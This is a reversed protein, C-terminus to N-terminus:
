LPERHTIVEAALHLAWGELGAEHKERTSELADDALKGADGVAGMLLRAESLWMIMQSHFSGMRMLASQELAERLLSEAEAFRATLALSYGLFAAFVPRWLPVDHRLCLERAREFPAIALAVDGRRVHLTGISLLGAVVTQPHGVAEAIELTEHAMADGEDFRGLDSLAWCLFGRAFVAPRIAVGFGEHSRERPLLEIVRRACDVCGQYDGLFYHAASLYTNALIAIMSDGIQAASERAQEGSVVLT